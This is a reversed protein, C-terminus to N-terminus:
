LAGRSLGSPFLTRMFKQYGLNNTFGNEAALSELNTKDNSSLTVCYSHYNDLRIFHELVNDFSTRACETPSIALVAALFLGQCLNQVDTYNRRAREKRWKTSSSGPEIDHECWLFGLRNRLIETHHRTLGHSQLDAVQHNIRAITTNVEEPHSM